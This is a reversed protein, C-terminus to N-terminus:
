PGHTVYAFGDGATAPCAWLLEVCCLVGARFILATHARGRAVLWYGIGYLAYLGLALQLFLLAAPWRYGTIKGLDLLPVYLNEPLLPVWLTWVAYVLATAVAVAILAM